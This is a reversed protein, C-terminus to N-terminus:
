RSALEREARLWDQEASGHAHGRAIWYSHALAAIQERTIVREPAAGIETEAVPQTASAATTM